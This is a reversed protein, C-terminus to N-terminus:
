SYYKKSLLIFQEFWTWIMEKNNEDKENKWIQKFYDVKKVDDTSLQDFLVCRELFFREDKNKVFEEFPVLNEYIYKMIKEPPIVDEILVKVMILDNEEPLLLCLEDIFVVLERKLLDLYKANKSISITKDM